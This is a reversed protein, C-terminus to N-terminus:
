RRRRRAVLGVGGLGLLALTCPEPTGYVELEDICIQHNNPDQSSVLIRVGTAAVMDFDYLHRLAKGDFDPYLLEGITTWDSTTQPDAAATYQVTYTGMCRDTYATGEGGNDRGWAIGDIQFLGGLDIAAWSDMASGIWSNSNGYLGDNLHPITHSAYGPLVSSAFATGSASAINAPATAPVSPNFHDGDNGDWTISYGTAPTIVLGARAGAAMSLALAIVVISVTARGIGTATRM